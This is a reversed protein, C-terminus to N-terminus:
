FIRTRSKQFSTFCISVQTVNDPQPVKKGRQLAPAGTKTLVPSVGKRLISIESENSGMEEQARIAQQCAWEHPFM